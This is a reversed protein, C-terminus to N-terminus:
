LAANALSLEREAATVRSESEAIRIKQTKSYKTAQDLSRNLKSITDSQKVNESKARKLESEVEILREVTQKQKERDHKEARLRNLKDVYERESQAIRELEVNVPRTKEFLEKKALRLKSIEKEIIEEADGEESLGRPTAM